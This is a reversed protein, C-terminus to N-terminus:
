GGCSIHTHLAVTSHYQGALVSSSPSFVQGLAMKGVVFGVQVLEMELRPRWPSLGLLEGCSGHCPMILEAVTTIYRCYIFLALSTHMIAFLVNLTTNRV